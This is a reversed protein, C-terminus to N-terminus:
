QFRRKCWSYLVQRPKRVLHLVFQINTSTKIIYSDPYDFIEGFSGNKRATGSYGAPLNQVGSGCRCDCGDVLEKKRIYAKYIFSFVCLIASPYVFVFFLNQLIQVWLPRINGLPFMLGNSASAIKPESFYVKGMEM